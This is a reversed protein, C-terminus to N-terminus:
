EFAAQKAMNTSDHLPVTVLAIILSAVIVPASRVGVMAIAVVLEIEAALM